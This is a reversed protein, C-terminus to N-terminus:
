TTEKLTERFAELEKGLAILDNEMDHAIQKAKIYNADIDVVDLLRKMTDLVPMAGFPGLSNRVSHCTRHVGKGDNDQINRYLDDVIGGYTQCYLDIINEMLEVDDGIQEYFVSEDFYKLVPKASSGDEIVVEIPPTTAAKEEKNSASYSEVMQIFLKRDLPKSIFDDMGAELCEVRSENMAHATMAIIPTRVSVEKEADRIIRTAELGDMKPMQIDMLIVDYRGQRFCKVAEIGNVAVEVQHQRKNLIGVAVRRNIENDDVLLVRMSRTKLAEIQSGLASRTNSSTRVGVGGQIIEMCSQSLENHTLPRSLVQNAGLRAFREAEVPSSGVPLLLVVQQSIASGKLIGELYDNKNSDLLAVDLITLQFPKGRDNYYEHQSLVLNGARVFVGEVEWEEFCNRIFERHYNNDVAVLARKNKLASLDIPNLLTEADKSKKFLASFYFTSGQGYVSDLWIRGNMKRVLETSISLGLGTGGYLRSTTGDVQQFSDFVKAQRDKPIGIGTDKVSFTLTVSEGEEETFQVRAHVEGEDTFKIANGILNIFVQRLRGVDGVLVDPVNTDVVCSLDISKERARVGLTKVTDEISKRLEFPSEQLILASNNGIKSFDLIDNVITLLAMGSDRIMSLYERQQATLDTELVLDAIGIIGNMPTRIEHSVNTLFENKSAAAARAEGKELELAEETRKLSEAFMAQQLIPEVTEIFPAISQPTVCDFDISATCMVGQPSKLDLLVTASRKGTEPLLDTIVLLNEAPISKRWGKEQYKWVQLQPEGSPTPQTYDFLIVSHVMAGLHLAGEAMVELFSTVSPNERAMRQAQERAEWLRQREFVHYHEATFGHKVQANRVAALVDRVRQEVPIESDIRREVSNLQIAQAHAFFPNIGLEIADLTMEFFHRRLSESKEVRKMLQEALNRALGSRIQNHAFFVDGLERELQGVSDDSNEWVKEIPRPKRESTKRVVFSSPVQEPPAIAVPGSLQRLLRRAARYGVQYFPLLIASFGGQSYESLAGHQTDFDVVAIDEPIRKGLLEVSTRLTLGFNDVGSIIATMDPNEELYDALRRRVEDASAFDTIRIIEFRRKSLYDAAKNLADLRKTFEDHSGEHFSVYILKSHGQDLLHELAAKFADVYSWSVRPCRTPEESIAVMPFKPGLFQRAEQELGGGVNNLIIGSVTQSNLVSLDSHIAFDAGVELCALRAGLSFLVNSENILPDILGIRLKSSM